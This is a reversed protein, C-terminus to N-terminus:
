TIVAEERKLLEKPQPRNDAPELLCEVLKALSSQSMSVTALIEAYSEVGRASVKEGSSGVTPHPHQTRLTARQSRLRKRCDAIGYRVDNELGEEDLTPRTSM